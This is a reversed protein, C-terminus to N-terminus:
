QQVSDLYVTGSFTSGTNLFQVGLAYFPTTSGAPVTYQLTTWGGPALSLYGEMHWSYAADSVFLQASLSSGPPAWVHATITSGVGLSSPAPSVQVWPYSSGTFSAAHIALSNTGDYAVATSNAVGTLPSGSATWGDTGGDEFSYLTHGAVTPVPTPTATATATPTPTAGSALAALHNKLGIGFNTPTGAYDTILAPGSSCNWTDWAWGVYSGSHADMWSMLTDIFGHACDNEGIEGAIVPVSAIVPAVVRDYCATSSCANFNYVHWSAVLNGTPDSPKYSLWQSLANSYQV